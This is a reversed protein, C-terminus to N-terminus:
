EHFDKSIWIFFKNRSQHPFHVVLRINARPVWVSWKWKKCKIQIVICDYNCRDFYSIIVTQQKMGYSGFLCYNLLISANTLYSCTGCDFLCNLLCEISCYFHFKFQLNHAFQIKYSLCLQFYLVFPLNAWRYYYFLSLM